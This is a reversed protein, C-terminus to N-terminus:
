SGNAARRRGWGIHRTISSGGRWRRKIKWRRLGHLSSFTSHLSVVHLLYCTSEVSEVTDADVETPQEVDVRGSTDPSEPAEVSDGNEKGEDYEMYRHSLLTSLYWTFFIVLPNLVKLPM